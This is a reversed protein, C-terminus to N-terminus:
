DKKNEFKNRILNLNESSKDYVVYVSKSCLNFAYELKKINAEAINIMIIYDKDIACIDNYSALVLKDLDQEVLSKKADLVTITDKIFYELDDHLKLQDVESGIVM